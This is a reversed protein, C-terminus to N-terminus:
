FPTFTPLLFDEQMVYGIYTKFLAVSHTLEGNIRLNGFLELNNAMQRGSILNLM